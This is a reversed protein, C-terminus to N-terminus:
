DEGVVELELAHGEGALEGDEAAGEDAGADAEEPVVGVGGFDEHAVDARESEAAGDAGDGDDDLLLQQEGEDATDEHELGERDDELYAAVLQALLADELHGREMM